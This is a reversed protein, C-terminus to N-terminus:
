LNGYETEEKINTEWDKLMISYIKQETNTVVNIAEVLDEINPLYSGSKVRIVKWGFRKTLVKNRIDDKRRDQHWYWGDYEIDIKQGMYFLAIDLSYKEVPYNLEVEYGKEKLMNYLQLQLKSTPINGHSYLTQRIKNKIEESQFVNECGYREKVTERAKQRVEDNQISWPVGYKEINVNMLKEKIEPVKMVSSAGYKELCTKERKDKTSQLKAAHTIGDYKVWCSDAAKYKICDSCCDRILIDDKKRTIYDAFSPSLPKGCYDCIINIPKHTKSNSKLLDWIDVDVYKQTVDYGKNALFDKVDQKTYPMCLQVTQDLIM